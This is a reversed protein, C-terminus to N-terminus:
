EIVEVTYDLGSSATVIVEGGVRRATATAAPKGDANPIVISAGDTIRYARLTVGKAYEYVPSDDVCGVPLLTNERVWLPLQFFDCEDRFWRGGERTKGDLLNTWVGDPLYYEVTGDESFVPAVLLSGGLMYQRDLTRVAPDDPFELFMPRLMPVGAEHAEVAKQYLYPMLRCKLRTFFRLVDVAEEDFLWPVRYSRSGHLRSHSSLLGFACWRKYVDAPATDEFGSIDHSWFGFGSAALSLGARLTDAMSNYTAFNDGGWHVPMQQGGASSSRAFVVADGKGREEELLEFVCRNYLLTYYNHMRVPDSGDHWAIDKVPIREGFDTKFCDVGQDLLKKLKSQYWAWAGPNTFDVMGMGAQWLDTQWVSGDTRKVLYGHEMGERFLPSDQGIYSNIWVCVKLGREHLKKLLGQPDPFVDTDWEFDCWRFSKMWGCDFHFVSLPLNREAMGEVFSLVTKEDYDTTFSTSLWLGMSWAPPLAPRGTLAVYRMLADKPDRGGIVCYSLTEGKLAFQVRGVNESGVEFAVDGPEDVFVGYGRSTLYFPVNKYALESNAGGDENWIEVEQGNRTFPTFREGLGYVLEGVSLELAEQVYGAGTKEDLFYAMGRFGTSTLLRGDYRYEIGWAGHKKNVRAEMLGSRYSLAEADEVIEVQTKGRLLEFDPKKRAAGAFHTITVRVVGEMPSDLRVTLAAGMTDQRGGVKQGPVVLEVQDGERRTRFWGVAYLPKIFPKVLWHGKKFKMNM